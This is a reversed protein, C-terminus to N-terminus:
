LRRAAPKLLPSTHAFASRFANSGQLSGNKRRTSFAGTSNTWDAALYSEGTRMSRLLAVDRASKGGDGSQLSITCVTHRIVCDSEFGEGCPFNGTGAFFVPFKLFHSPILLRFPWSKDLTEPYNGLLVFLSNKIGYCPFKKAHDPFLNVDDPIRMPALTDAANM